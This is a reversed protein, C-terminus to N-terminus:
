HPGRTTILAGIHALLENYNDAAPAKRKAKPPRILKALEAVDAQALPLSNNINIPLASPLLPSSSPSQPLGPQPQSMPEGGRGFTPVGGPQEIAGPELTEAARRLQDVPARLSGVQAPTNALADADRRAARLDTWANVDAARKEYMNSTSPGKGSLVKLIGDTQSKLAEPTGMMRGRLEGGLIGGALGGVAGSATLEPTFLHESGYKQEASGPKAMAANSIFLAAIAAGLLRPMWM